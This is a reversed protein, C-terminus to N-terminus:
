FIIQEVEFENKGVRRMQLGIPSAASYGSIENRIIYKEGDVFCVSYIFHQILGGKNICKVGEPKIIGVVLITSNGIEKETTRFVSGSNNNQTKVIENYFSQFEQVDKENVNKEVCGGVIAVIVVLLLLITEKNM